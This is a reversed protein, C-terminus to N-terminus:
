SRSPTSASGSVGMALWFGMVKVMEDRVDPNALNLDPQRVPLPAPLVPGGREDYTWASDEEGPFVIEAGDDPPEDAWIYWDRFPSDRSM